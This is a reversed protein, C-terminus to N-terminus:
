IEGISELQEFFPILSKGKTTLYYEVHLPKESIVKRELLGVEELERLATTISQKNSGPIERLLNSFRLPSNLSLRFVEPKFKGSLLKLIAQAKCTEPQDDEKKTTM